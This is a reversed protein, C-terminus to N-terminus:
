APALVEAETANDAEAQAIGAATAAVCADDTEPHAIARAKATAAQFKALWPLFRMPFGGLVLGGNLNEDLYKKDLRGIGDSFEKFELVINPDENAVHAKINLATKAAKDKIRTAGLSTAAEDVVIKGEGLKANVADRVMTISIGMSTLLGEIAVPFVKVSTKIQISANVM